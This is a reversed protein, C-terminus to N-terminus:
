CIAVPVLLFNGFVENNMVLLAHGVSMSLDNSNIEGQLM